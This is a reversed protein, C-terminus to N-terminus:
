GRDQDVLTSIPKGVSGIRDLRDNFGYVPSNETTGYGEFMKFGRRWLVKSCGAPCRRRGPSSSGFRRGASNRASRGASTDPRSLPRAPRRPPKQKKQKNIGDELKKALTTYLAPIAIFITIHRDRILDSVERYKNTYINTAGAALALMKGVTMGFSHHPPLIHGLVDSPTMDVKRISGQLNAILNAHTLEVERPDGTTGSTCLIM